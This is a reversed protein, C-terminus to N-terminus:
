FKVKKSLTDSYKFTKVNYTLVKIQAEFIGAMRVNVCPIETRQKGNADNSTCRSTM